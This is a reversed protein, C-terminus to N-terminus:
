KEVHRREDDLRAGSDEHCSDISENATVNDVLQQLPSVIDATCDAVGLLARPERLIEALLVGSGREFHHSYRVHCGLSAIIFDDFTRRRGGRGKEWSVQKCGASVAPKMWTAEGRLPSSGLMTMGVATLPARLPRLAAASVGLM